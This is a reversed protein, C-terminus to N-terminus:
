GESGELCRAAQTRIARLVDDRLVCGPHPDPDATYRNIGHPNNLAAVASELEVLADHRAIAKMSEQDHEGKKM